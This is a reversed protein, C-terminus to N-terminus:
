KAQKAAKKSAKKVAGKPQPPTALMRKVAAEFAPTLKPSSKPM